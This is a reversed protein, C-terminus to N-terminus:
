PTGTIQQARPAYNKYGETRVVRDLFGDKVAKALLMENALTEIEAVPQDTKKKRIQDFIFMAKSVQEARTVYASMSYALGYLCSIKNPIVRAAKEPSMTPDLLSEMTPLEAIEESTHKFEVAAAEGVLGNILISSTTRDDIKTLVESVRAWSRPSPAILKDTARSLGGVGTLFQPKVRMFSLVNIHINHEVAWTLWDDPSAVVHIHVFRDSLATGMKFSIAGDEPSNGAGIVMWKDPLIHPGIRRDLVLQYATAQMRPEAATLEDLFICGPINDVPFFEPRYSTTTKTKEDIWQLGKLDPADM